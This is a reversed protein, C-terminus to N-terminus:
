AALAAFRAPAVPRPDVAPLRGLMLAVLQRATAPALTVGLGEHGLSLWLGRQRPHEGILPLGDPTASRVGTWSRIANLSALGPLFELARRLMRALLAADVAADTRGLERSSGILLQGTPRPQVNFAVAAGDRTNTAHASAIYGLEVLQHRVAGPCRDTIVLQGKKPQLPLEPLLAPTHAGTAVVIAAAERVSGDELQLRGRGLRAVRAHEVRVPRASTQILARAVNPAYVVADDPV